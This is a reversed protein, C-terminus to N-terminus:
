PCRGPGFCPTVTVTGGDAPSGIVALPAALCVCSNTNTVVFATDCKSVVISKEFWMGCCVDSCNEACASTQEIFMRVRWTSAALRVIEIRNDLLCEVGGVDCNGLPTGEFCRVDISGVFKKEYICSTGGFKDFCFTGDFRLVLFKASSGGLTPGTCNYCNLCIAANFGSLVVRLTRPTCCLPPCGPSETTTNCPQCNACELCELPECCECPNSDVLAILNGGGLGTALSGSANALLRAVM